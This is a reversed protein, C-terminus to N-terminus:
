PMADRQPMSAVQARGCCGVLVWRRGPRPQGRLLPQLREQSEQPRGEGQGGLGEQGQGQCRCCPRPSCFFQHPNPPPQQPPLPKVARSAVQAALSRSPCCAHRARINPLAAVCDSVRAAQRRTALLRRPWLSPSPLRSRAPRPSPAQPPLLAHSEPRAGAQWACAGFSMLEELM